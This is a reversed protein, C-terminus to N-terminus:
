ASAALEKLLARTRATSASRDDGVPFPAAWVDTAGAAFLAEIQGTVSAENGVIAADGPGAADGHALIRQYNPLTGYMAFAEAAVAKAEADDDHVAVPLGAVIRPEPRGADAAAKRIRPAVFREISTANAMWTITGASYQGAVRLLRPALAAVLVPVPAGDVLAPAAANVRFEEGAFRVPEGRLLATVIQVYEDTHRGPTDYALGQMGEVVPRHSPGVGLTFRGPTDIAAVVAAARSAQLAPHCTYTQLVSTGLEITSTARGALAIAVLPDGATGSSYWLSTFGDAEAREAQGIIRDVTQGSGPLGIRM